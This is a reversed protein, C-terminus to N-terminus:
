RPYASYNMNKMVVAKNVPLIELDNGGEQLGVELTIRGDQGVYDEFLVRGNVSVAILPAAEENRFFELNLTTREGASIIKRKLPKGKDIRFNKLSAEQSSLIGRIKGDIESMEAQNNLREFNLRLKDLTALNDADLELAKQYWEGADYIFDLKQFSDGVMNLMSVYDNLSSKPFSYALENVAGVDRIVDRYRNQKFDLWIKYFLPSISDGPNIQTKLLKRSNLYSELDSLEQIGEELGLYVRLLREAEKLSRTRQVTGKILGLLVSKTLTEYEEPEILEEGTLSQYFKIRYLTGLGTRFREMARRMRFLRYERQGVGYARKAEAFEWFEARALKSQRVELSLSREGLFQAYQRYARPEHPFIMDIIGYDPENMAWVQLITLMKDRGQANFVNKLIDLTFDKEEETLEAWRLFMIRGIEFYRDDDYTTLLAAKKYEEYFDIDLSAFYGRYLLMQAFSFHSKYSGPNLKISRVFSDMSKKLFLDRQEVNTLDQMGKDFYAMGLAYFVMDNCPNIQGAKELLVISKESNAETEARYYLHYSWYVVINVAALVALVLILLTKKM